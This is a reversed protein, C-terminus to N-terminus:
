AEMMIVTGNPLPQGAKAATIAELNAYIEERIGGRNVTAYHMGDKYNEPCQVRDNAAWAQWGAVSGIAAVALASTFSLRRVLSM